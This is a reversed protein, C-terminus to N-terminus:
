TGPRFLIEIRRNIKRGEPTDNSAEPQHEAFGVAVLKDAAIGGEKQLYRLINVARMTSLEWNSPFKATEIPLNDTHGEVQVDLHNQKAITIIGDLVPYISPALSADGSAFLVPNPIVAKFGDATKIVTFSGGLTSNATLAQLSQMARNMDPNQLTPPPANGTVHKLKQLRNRDLVSYAILMVFFVVLLLMLSCYITQWQPIAEVAPPGTRKTM